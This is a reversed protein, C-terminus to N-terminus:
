SKYKIISSLINRIENCELFLNTMRNKFEPNAESILELWHLTEKSEKRSIKMRMLFDKRGLSDNAERYNAGVSGASRIIQKILQNNITTKPLNQCLRIIRKAMNTTRIELDFSHM